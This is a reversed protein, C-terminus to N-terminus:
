PPATTGSSQVDEVEVDDDVQDTNDTLAALEYGVIAALVFRGAVLAVRLKRNERKSALVDAGLRKATL